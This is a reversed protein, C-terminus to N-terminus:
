APPEAPVPSISKPRPIRAVFRAGGTPSSTVQVSGGAADAAARALALGLGYGARSGRPTSGQRFAEFISEREEARVGPGSDDITIELTQSSGALGIRVIGGDPSWKIANGVLNRVMLVLAERDGRLDCSGVRTLQIEIGRHAGETREHELRLELEEGLDFEEDRRLTSHEGLATLTVLNDVVLALKRLEELQRDILARYADGDRDRLLGVEAETILNQLPSRLEHALGATLLVNRARREKLLDLGRVFAAVVAHIEDPATSPATPEVDVAWRDPSASEAVRRLLTSLRGAFQAGALLIALGLAWSVAVLVTLRGHLRDSSPTGDILMELRLAEDRVAGDAGIVALTASTSFARVDPAPASSAFEVPPTVAPWESRPAAGAVIWPEDYPSRWVRVTLDAGVTELDLKSAVEHVFEEDLPREMLDVQLEADEEAVLADLERALTDRVFWTALGTVVILLGGVSVMLWGRLRRALSWRRPVGRTGSGDTM